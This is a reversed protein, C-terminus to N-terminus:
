SENLLEGMEQAQKKSIKEVVMDASVIVYDGPKVMGVLDLRATRDDSLVAKNGSVSIIKRPVALCM